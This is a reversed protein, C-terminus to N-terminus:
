SAEPTIKVRKLRGESVSHSTVGPIDRIANHVLFRERATMPELLEAEGAGRVREAVERALVELRSENEDRPRGEGREGFEVHASGSPGLLQQAARQALHSVAAPLSHQSRALGEAGSGRVTIMIEDDRRSEEIRIKGGRAIRRVIGAVFEGVEGLADAELELPEPKRPPEARPPRESRREARPERRRERPRSPSAGPESRSVLLFTRNGLGSVALEAPLERIELQEEGVGYHTLAKALAAERTDAVFEKVADITTM